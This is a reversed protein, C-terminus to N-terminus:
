VRAFSPILGIDGGADLVLWTRAAYNVAMLIGADHPAFPPADSFYYGELMVGFNHPLAGSLALSFWGQAVLPGELGLLNAGANLDAHLWGFFDKSAYGVFFLNYIPTYGLQNAVLPVSVASSLALSPVFRSQDLLHFKLGMALNDFYATPAAGNTFVGGNSGLQLQLWTAVSLKLLFPTSHEDVNNPLRRYIYGAEVELAGPVVIDATCAITPRCPLAHLNSDPLDIALGASTLLVASCLIAIVLLRRSM